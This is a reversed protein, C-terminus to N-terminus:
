EQISTGKNRGESGRGGSERKLRESREVLTGQGDEGRGELEPLRVDESSM